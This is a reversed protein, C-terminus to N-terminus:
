KTKINHYREIQESTFEDMKVGTRIYNKYWEATEKVTQEIDLKPIWKLEKMAKSIDLSLNGSEKSNKDQNVIYKGKGFYLFFKKSLEEVNTQQTNLPGFNWSGSYANSSWMKEALLFIGSIPELVHQWPRTSEPNRILTSEGKIIGRVLDPILRFQAWDGGGIVNGARVSSIKIDSDAFYSDRFSDVVFEQCSKSASYPDKGGILDIERYPYNWENNKYSKDSTVVIISKVSDAKRLENLLNATGTVNIDFTTVPDELAELVIPKAALHIVIDPDFDLIAKGLSNKNRIDERVDKIENTLGITDFLSPKTPPELAYGCVDAGSMSLWKCMWSGIFGTHGTVLVKKDRFFNIMDSEKNNSM